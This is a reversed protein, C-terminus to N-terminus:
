EEESNRVGVNQLETRTEFGDASSSLCNVVGATGRFL